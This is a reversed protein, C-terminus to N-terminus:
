GRSRRGTRLVYFKSIKRIFLLKGAKIYLSCCHKGQTDNAVNVSSLIIVPEQVIYTHIRLICTDICDNRLCMSGLNNVKYNMRMKLYM